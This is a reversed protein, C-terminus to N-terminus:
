KYPPFLVAFSGEGQKLEYSKVLSNYAEKHGVCARQRVSENEDGVVLRLQPMRESSHYTTDAVFIGNDACAELFAAYTSFLGNGLPRFERALNPNNAAQVMHRYEHRLVGQWSPVSIENVVEQRVFVCFPHCPYTSTDFGEDPGTTARFNRKLLDRYIEGSLGTSTSSVILLTFRFGEQRLVTQALEVNRTPDTDILDNEFANSGRTAPPM